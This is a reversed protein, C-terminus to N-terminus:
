RKRTGVVKGLTISVDFDGWILSVVDDEEIEPQLIRFLDSEFESGAKTSGLAYSCFERYSELSRFIVSYSGNSLEGVTVDWTLEFANLTSAVDVLRYPNAFLSAGTAVRNEDVPFSNNWHISLHDEIRMEERVHQDFHTYTTDLYRRVNKVITLLPANRLNETVSSFGTDRMHAKMSSLIEECHYDRCFRFLHSSRRPLNDWHSGEVLPFKALLEDFERVLEPAVASSVYADDRAGWPGNGEADFKGQCLSYIASQMCISYLEESANYAIECHYNENYERLDEDTVREFIKKASLIDRAARDRTRKVAFIPIRNPLAVDNLTTKSDEVQLDLRYKLARLMGRVNDIRLRKTDDQLMMQDVLVDLDALFPYRDRILAHRRGRPNQKTFMETVVIAVAFVDAPSGVCTANNKLMQEPALYNRNALLEGRKTLVSDRFHAIGFDALVLERSATDVLINEPKIDRHVVGDGHIHAVADCLQSTYDLLVDPEIEGDIVDRLTKPYFDMVYFFFEDDESYSKIKLVNRHNTDRGYKIELEFRKNRASDKKSGKAIQKVAFEKGDTKRRVKWVTASGGQGLKADREYEIAGIIFSERKTM